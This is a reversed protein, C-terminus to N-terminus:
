KKGFESFLDPRAKKAEQWALGFDGKCRPLFENVLALQEADRAGSIAAPKRGTTDREEVKLKPPLAALEVVANAFGATLKDQWTRQEAHTIQGRGVAIGVLRIAADNAVETAKEVDKELKAAKDSAETASGKLAAAMGKVLDAPAPKEGLKKRAEDDAPWAENIAALTAGNEAIMGEIATAIEEESAKAPDLGLAKALRELFTMGDGEETGAAEGATAENVLTALGPWNPNNTMGLSKVGVIDVIPVGNARENAMVARFHPSLFKFHKNDLLDKGAAPWDFVFEIGDPLLRIDNAWGYARIDTDRDRFAPHDPHGIYVPLGPYATGKAAKQALLEDVIAKANAANLRQMVPLGDSAVNEVMGFPIKYTTGVSFENALGILHKKRQKM